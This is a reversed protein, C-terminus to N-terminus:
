HVSKSFIAMGRRDSLSLVCKKSQDPIIKMTQLSIIV